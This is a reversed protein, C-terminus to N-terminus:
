WWLFVLLFAQIFEPKNPEILLSQISCALIRIGLKLLHADFDIGLAYDNHMFLSKKDKSICILGAGALGLDNNNIVVISGDSLVLLGEPKDSPMYGLKSLNFRTLKFTTKIGATALDGATM